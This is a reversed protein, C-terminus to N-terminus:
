RKLFKGVMGTVDDVMSGDRDRDLLPTLMGILGGGSGPLGSGLGAGGSKQAFAGMMLSAVLPLMRKLVDPSLGTQAAAQTAVDRSTDKSGFVHGLINSGDNVAQQDSLTAPNEVYQQHSGGALAATLNGLGDQSQLNRQFGAALAPVLASLAATTQQEGLGFQSGLQSVAKGGGANVVADLINM